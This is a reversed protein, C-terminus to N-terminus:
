ICSRFPANNKFTLIKNRRNAVNNVTVSIRGKVVIYDDNCDCLDSRLMSTKSRKIKNVSYQGSSLDTKKSSLDAIKNGLFKGAKHVAKRSAAKLSDLGTDLLRKKYKRVISLIVCVKVFKRARPGISYRRM